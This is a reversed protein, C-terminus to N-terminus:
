LSRELIGAAAPDHAACIALGPHGRRFVEVARTSARLAAHSGIGPLHDEDFQPADFTLDGVLLVPPRGQRRVLLSVSGATHGPTPLVVLSGDGFVDHSATFPALAPDSTPTLSVPHWRPGAADIHERLYGNVEAGPRQSTDWETRSVLLDAQPIDLVGGMHDQHLHSIVALAVDDPEHGAARLLAPLTEDEAIAFEALRRYVLGAAGGPYYDPDTVSRRHQGTDFLVLGNEHQIVYVNIPLPPTWRRSAFLWLPLPRWTRHGHEPRIRVTGTSLVSLRRVPGAGPSDM